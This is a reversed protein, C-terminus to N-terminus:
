KKCIQRGAIFDKCRCNDNYNDSDNFAHNKLLFIPPPIKLKKYWCCNKMWMRSLTEIFIGKTAPHPPETLLWCFDTQPSFVFYIQCFPVFYIQYFPIFSIQCFPVFYIQCFIKLFDYKHYPMRHEYTCFTCKIIGYFSFMSSYHWWHQNDNINMKHYMLSVQLICYAIFFHSSISNLITFFRNTTVNWQQANSHYYNKILSWRDNIRKEAESAGYCTWLETHVDFVQFLSVLFKVLKCTKLSCFILKANIRIWTKGGDQRLEIWNLEIWNM